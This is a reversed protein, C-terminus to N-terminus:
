RGAAPSITASPEIRGRGIRPAHGDADTERLVVEEDAFTYAAAAQLRLALHLDHGRALSRSDSSRATSEPTSGVDDDSVDAHGRAPVVFSDLGRISAGLACGWTPTTTRLWNASGSYASASSSRPEARRPYRRLSRTWWPSLLEGGRDLLTAAPPDTARGSPRRRARRRSLGPPATAAKRHECGPLAVDEASPAPCSWRPWRPRVRDGVDTSFYMLEIKAFSPQTPAPRCWRTM